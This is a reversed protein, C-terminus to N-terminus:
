ARKRRPMKDALRHATTVQVHEYGAAAERSSWRGTAILDSTDAGGYIRMWAGYSHCLVHFAVKEPIVIGGAACAARWLGYLEQSGKYTDKEWPFLRGDPVVARAFAEIIDATLHATRPKKNKTERIYAVGRDLDIDRGELRLGESLRSGTYLLFTLLVGFRPEIRDAADLLAHAHAEQLFFKRRRGNAGIPRSFETKIGARRLIAIIPTYVQRNRTAPTADPYLIAAAEDIRAQDIYSLPTDYLHVCLPAIFRPSGGADVYSRAAMMFDPGKTPKPFEGFEGRQLRKRAERQISARVTLAEQKETTRASQDIKRGDITTGRIHYFSTRGKKPPVIRLPM